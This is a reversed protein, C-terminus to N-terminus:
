LIYEMMTEKVKMGMKEYFTRASDNGEWVCLTVEYCGMERAANKVFEFLQSGLHRGRASQDVCLDDIYVSTFPVMTTSFPQSKIVCFAYGKVTDTDDVAVYIMRDDERLMGSLEERTYKTTGSIFIDPRLKAHIELVQSLLALIGDIDKEEARRIVFMFVGGILDFAFGQRSRMRTGHGAGVSLLMDSYVLDIEADIFM